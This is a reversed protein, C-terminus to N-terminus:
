KKHAEQWISELQPRTKIKNISEPFIVGQKEFLLELGDYGLNKYKDAIKQATYELRQPTNLGNPTKMGRYEEIWDNSNNFKKINLKEINLEVVKNNTMASTFDEISSFDRPNIKKQGASSFNQAYKKSSSYYFGSGLEGRESVKIGKEFETFNKTGHYVPTGQAKVFEEATKYKKAESLLDDAKGMSGIRGEVEKPLPLNGIEDQIQKAFEKLTQLNVAGGFGHNQAVQTMQWITEPTAEKNFRLLAMTEEDSLAKAVMAPKINSPIGSANKISLGGQPEKLMSSLTKPQPITPTLSDNEQKVQTPLKTSGTSPLSPKELESFIKSVGVDPNNLYKMYKQIGKIAVSAGIDAPNMMILGRALEAGSTINALNGALGVANQRGWVINRHAVDKEMSSLAGYQNKLAQYQAGTSKSIGDDLAERFKNVILADISASSATDYSPNRYFAKLSENYHQIVDQATQADIGGAQNLREQLTKAYEVARPNAISLSKSEIVPSLEKAIIPADVTVGQGGAQKALTDYKQFISKKTQEIAQTLQEVSKPAQGTIKEGNADTFTLNAKNDAISKLGSVAQTNAKEIQGANSKGVVTPRIARNYLDTVKAENLNSTFAKKVGQKVVGATDIATQPLENVGKVIDGKIAGVTGINLARTFDEAANPHATAWDQVAKIDTIGTVDVIKQAIPEIVRSQLGTKDFVEGVATSLPSIAAGAIDGTVRLAPKALGKFVDMAGSGPQAKNKDLGTQLQTASETITESIKGPLETFPITFKELLSPEKPQQKQKLAAIKEDIASFASTAKIAPPTYGTSKKWEDIKAQQEPTIM